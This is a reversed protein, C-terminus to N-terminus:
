TAAVIQVHYFDFSHAPEARRGASSIAAQEVRTLFYDPRDRPNLPEILLKVGAGAADAAARALNRSSCQRPRRGSNRRSWGALCHIARGWYRCCLRARARVCGGLGARPRAIRRPGFEGERGLPTNIGLQTLGHRALEAKVACRRSRMPTNCSSRPFVAAAAAGFRELASARHVSVRSQRSFAAHDSGKGSGLPGARREGLSDSALRSISSANEARKLIPCNGMISGVNILPCNQPQGKGCAKTGEALFSGLKCLRACCVRFLGARASSVM